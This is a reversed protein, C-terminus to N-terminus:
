LIWLLLQLFLMLIEDSLLEILFLIIVIREFCSSGLCFSQFIWNLLMILRKFVITFVFFRCIWISVVSSFILMFSADYWNWVSRMGLLTSLLINAGYISFVGVVYEIWWIGLIRCCVSVIVIYFLWFWILFIVFHRRFM